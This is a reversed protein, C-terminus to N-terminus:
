EGAGDGQAQAVPRLEYTADFQKRTDFDPAEPDVWDPDGFHVVRGIDIIEGDRFLRSGSMCVLKM